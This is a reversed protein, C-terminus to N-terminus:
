VADPTRQAQAEILTHVCTDLPYADTATANWQEVIREHEAAGLIPLEGLHRDAQETLAQLLAMLHADIQHIQSASFHAQDFSYRLELTDGLSVALTLPYNTQEHSAVTGFRLEDPAGQQLAESVPYNEFVLINDFLAEGGQGGWRQIEFLPTHEFERVSLNQAQVAQLWQVVSLQPSPSAIVPLTNIFLGVQEEVGQLDTPRGAVTAGFAVAQQGTYRQLLLLWAAQLLTNLTVKRARAFEGLAQTASREVLRRHEAQGHAGSAPRLLSSALRTPQEFSALQQEWFARSAAADQGQLWQIYDRYRVRPADVALGAYHQMVEGILRSSSWGDMLIHHHTYILHHQGAGTEVLQLRLLPAHALDFGQALAKAALQNADQAADHVEFPVEVARHVLQLPQALDGEWCFSSRLIEHREVVRQWALRFRAPDLGDIDVRLQNVYDGSGQEYLTHFLMGQQMPALPLIDEINDATVPLNDLQAQNVPALPFDSPTFGLARGAACHAVLSALERSYEHALREIVEPEFMQASFSWELSLEGDYVQGNLTLWNGLPTQADQEAGASEVAPVFLSAGGEDFQGDLQGLYNFTIRAEPLAAMLAQTAADALHRLIGFGIGKDPAARLQEKIAKITQGLDQAPTLLVPYKSTFWGVTRSLDIDDFLAERGHGELQVLVSREGSWRTIVRALASLLLDNVQTRYAAPAQQLLQRTVSADLRSYVSHSDCHRAPAEAIAGPLTRPAGQLSGQWYDVQELLRPAQALAQLQQAWRQVSSTRAPLSIPQGAQLQECAHQLDEFLVRWSVGDVVLHHIVLLLRQSGDDMQVCVARLLRQGLDLGAQVTECLAELAGRDTCHAQELLPQQQWLAQQQEVSRYEAHWQGTVQGFVQRLADHHMVLAQLASELLAVPLNVQSRLLFSQNWHARRAVPRAFFAQQIPLLALAGQAPGQEGLKAEGQRAVGALGQVTQYQFLQKPTFHIGAQRARSVVQISIISDGGLEFFNDTVGVQERKLVDQWITALRQELVNRPAVFAAETAAEPKPLAKRDLKGNANLPLNALLVLQSPVMHEPLAQRLQAFLETRLQAPEGEGEGEAVVYGVLQRGSASPMALVAAERVQPLNRLANAVEGPEIRYGRIKVQDDVRGLYEIGTAGLRVQDGSRYLRAGPAGAPDPVFREGTLGPQGVYGRALGAGGIHLEGPVGDLVAQLDADLVRVHSNALPQGLSARPTAVALDIAGALVGVTTETPGYHNFVRCQPALRHIETLLTSPCAEGGLVLYRRPLVQEPRAAKLLADLHSPVIKLADIAHRGMYDAFGDADMALETDVLHLTRGTCLAGFLQTYGLDASLTSVLAMRQVDQWEIRQVVGQLYNLLAGHEVMVGKPQGTSGSTYVLYATNSRELAVAEAVPGGKADAIVLRPTDLGPLTAPVDVLMLCAASSRLLQAQREQPLAPDLAVFAAGAKHVALMAVAWEVTCGTAIAVRAEPGVGQEGLRWALAGAWQELEAYSLRQEGVVVALGQPNARAQESILEHVGAVPKLALGPGATTVPAGSLLIEGLRAQPNAVLRALLELWHGAMREIREARFLDTAYILTASLAGGQEVTELTLDFKSTQEGPALTEVRLGGVQSSATRTEDSQHNHLVQFLPSHSLSRQPQLAEVLQEFPLDQHAQAGMAAAKAQAVLDVFRQSGEVNASLVQTNIFFGILGETEVRHRNAIPVGVRIRAQGSYRHLLLQFSALLVVFLTTGESQALRKLGQALPVPLSVEHRGGRYSQQAPRPFDSPLELLLHEDGLQETWYQLQRDREGAEMWQRQWIAYDPYQIALAPLQPTQGQSRAAYCAVLEDVLIGMSVGDAVIHHLTLVLVHDDEALRLLGVRLLPARQLDFLQQTQANVFTEIAQDRAGPDLGEALSAHEIPLAALKEVVQWTRDDEDIQFRTRLAEHREILDAFAAQLATIDLAGHLRLASPVHYARSEPDLQWLFWQRQQAYSLPLRPLEGRMAPIPFQALSMGRGALKDLFAQRQALPLRIFRQVLALNDLEAM